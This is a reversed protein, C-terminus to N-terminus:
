KLFATLSDKYETFINNREIIYCLYGKKNNEKYIFKQFTKSKTKKQMKIIKEITKVDSNIKDYLNNIMKIEIIINNM